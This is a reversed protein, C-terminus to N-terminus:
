EPEIRQLVLGRDIEFYTHLRAVRHSDIGRLDSRVLVDAAQRADAESTGFHMFVATCFNELYDAPFLSSETEFSM